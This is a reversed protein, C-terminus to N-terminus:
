PQVGRWAFAMLDLTTVTIASYGKRNGEVAHWSYDIWYGDTTQEVKDITYEDREYSGLSALYAALFEDVELNTDMAHRGM